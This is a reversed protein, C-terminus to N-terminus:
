IRTSTECWFVKIDMEADRIDPFVKLKDLKRLDETSAFYHQGTLSILRMTKDVSANDQGSIHVKSLVDEEKVIHVKTAFAM